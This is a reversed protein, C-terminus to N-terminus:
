KRKKYIHENGITQVYTYGNQALKCAEQTNHAVKCIYEDSFDPLLGIYMQTNNLNKHGLMKMVAYVNNTRHLETTAKWHRFTHFHIQKIRPNCLNNAIRKRARIFNNRASKKSSYNFIKPTNHPLTNLMIILKNSKKISRPNSRKELTISLTSTEINLDTWKLNLAEGFRAGTEKLTQLFTAMQHKCGSILQDLENELPIFAM